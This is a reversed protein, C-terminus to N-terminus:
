APSQMDPSTFFELGSLPAGLQMLRGGVALGGISVPHLHSDAILRHVVARADDDDGAVFLVRRAGDVPVPAFMTKVPLTNFAKVVRAAPALRAIIESGSDAGLDDVEFEPAYSTFINTADILVRGRWNIEPTLVDRVRTWPVALIVVPNDLAETVQGATVHNGLQMALERLSEPGRSNAIVVEHGAAALRRALAQGVTAAGLIGINM